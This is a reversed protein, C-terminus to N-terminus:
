VITTENVQFTYTCSFMFKRLFYLFNVKKLCKFFIYEFLVLREQFSIPCHQLAWCLITCFVLALYWDSYRFSFSMRRALIVFIAQKMKKQLTLFLTQIICILLYLFIQSTYIIIFGKYAYSLYYLIPNYILRCKLDQMLFVGHTARDRSINQKNQTSFYLINHIYHICQTHINHQQLYYIQNCFFM